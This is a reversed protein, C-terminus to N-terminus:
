LSCSVVKLHMELNDEWYANQKSVYGTKVYHPIHLLIALISVVMVSGLIKRLTNVPDMEMVLDFRVVVLVRLVSQTVMLCPIITGAYHTMQEFLYAVTYPLHCIASSWLSPFLQAIVAANYLEILTWNM